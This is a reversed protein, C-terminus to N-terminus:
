GAPAAPQRVFGFRKPVESEAIPEIALDRGDHRFVGLDAGCAEGHWTSAGSFQELDHDHLLAAQLAPATGPAMGAVTGALVVNGHEDAFCAQLTFAQGTTTQLAGQHLRVIWPAYGLTVFVRQPGNQFYWCGREDCQYNREIFGILAEHRIPDGSLGHQQAYENRLRWQGRRDLTLWGYANPVNPWRAMAQRVIDDM